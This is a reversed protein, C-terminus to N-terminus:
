KSYASERLLQYLREVASMWHTDSIELAGGGIRALRHRFLTTMDKSWYGYILDAYLKKFEEGHRDINEPFSLVQTDLDNDRDQLSVVTTLHHLCILSLSELLNDRVSPKSTDSLIVVIARTGSLQRLAQPLIRYNSEEERPLFASHGTFLPRFPSLSRTNKISFHVKQSFSILSVRDRCQLAHEALTLAASLYYDSKASGQIAGMMSRGTDIAIILHHQHLAEFTRTMPRQYRASKRQDIHRLADPYQYPRISHFQDPASSRAKLRSGQSLVRQAHLLEQFAQETLRRREPQIRLEVPEVLPLESTRTLLGWRSTLRLPWSELRRYGLRIPLLSLTARLDHRDQFTEETSPLVDFLERLSDPILWRIERLQQLKPTAAEIHSSFSTERGLHLAEPVRLTLRLVQASRLSRYDIFTAVLLASFFIGYLVLAEPIVFSAIGWLQTLGYIAFFRGTLKMNM